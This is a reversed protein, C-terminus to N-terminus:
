PHLGRERVLALAQDETLGILDDDAIDPEGERHFFLDVYNGDSMKGRVPHSFGSEADPGLAQIPDPLRSVEVITPEQEAM